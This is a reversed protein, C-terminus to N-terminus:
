GTACCASARSATAEPADALVVFVEWENGDPDTVYVKDQDAFCCTVRERRTALGSQALRSAAAEVVRTSKVEVGFHSVGRRGEVAEARNLALNLPPEAVEFKAYGSRVKCPATGFLAEYFARSREVDAVALAVHVRSETAFERITTGEM